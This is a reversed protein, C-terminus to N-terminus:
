RKRDAAPCRNKRRRQAGPEGARCAARRRGAAIGAFCCDPGARRAAARGAASDLLAPWKGPRPGQLRSGDPFQLILPGDDLYELSIGASHLRWDFTDLWTHSVTQESGTALAFKPQLAAEVAEVDVAGRKSFARSVKGMAYRGKAAHGRGVSLHYGDQTLAGNM